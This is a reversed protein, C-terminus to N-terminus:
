EQWTLLILATYVYNGIQSILMKTIYHAPLLFLIFISTVVDFM